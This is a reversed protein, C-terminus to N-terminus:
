MNLKAPLVANTRIQYYLNKNSIKILQFEVNILNQNCNKSLSLSVSIICYFAQCGYEFISNIIKAFKKMKNKFTYKM